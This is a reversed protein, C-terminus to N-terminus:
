RQYRLKLERKNGKADKLEMKLENSTGSGGAGSADALEQETAKRFTLNGQDDSFGIFGGAIDLDKDSKLNKLNVLGEVVILTDSGSGGSWKGKTGRISAVSTPSTLHFQENQQKQVDFGFAGKHLELTKTMSGRPGEATVMLESLERLRMISNDTFKIVALSNKGTKVEDGAVLVDGRVAKTWDSATSKRMVEEIIKTVLALTINEAPVLTGALGFLLVGLVLSCHLLFFFRTKM